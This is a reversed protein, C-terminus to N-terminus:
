MMHLIVNTCNMLFMISGMIKVYESQSITPSKNEKEKKLGDKDNM